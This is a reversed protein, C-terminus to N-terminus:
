VTLSQEHELLAGHSFVTSLALVMLGALVVDIRLNLPPSLPIGEIAVRRLVMAAVFNQILPVLVGAVMLILAIARLRVANAPSFPDGEVVTKFIKKLLYVVWLVVLVGLVWFGTAAFHILFSGTDFRLEGTGDVIRPRAVAVASNQGPELPLVSRLPGATYEGIAVPLSVEYALNSGGTALPSFLWWLTLLLAGIGGVILIVDLWVKVVRASLLQPKAM